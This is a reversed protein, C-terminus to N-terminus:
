PRCHTSFFARLAARREDGIPLFFSAVPSLGPARTRVGILTGVKDEALAHPDCRTPVLRLLLEAPPDDPGLPVPPIHDAAPSGDANRFLPTGEFGAFSVDDREGTPTLTVPVEFVSARGVGVVRPEGLELTAAEGLVEAACDRDLFLGVAGYRDTATTESIREPGDDLRYTLRVRADSGDGCRGPPMEFPLDAENVFSKEGTWTVTGFRPSTVEARTVTVTRDPEDVLRVFATRTVRLLRSQDVYATLGSPMEVTEPAPEDGGGGCGLLPLALVALLVRRPPPM